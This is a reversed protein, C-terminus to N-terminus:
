PQAAHGPEGPTRQEEKLSAERLHRRGATLDDRVAAELERFLRWYGDDYEEVIQFTWRGDLVNRGYLEREIRDAWDGHGADRLMPIAEQVHRNGEGTLQHFAYLHGRAWETVELGKTLRGVADVTAPTVGDPIEHEPIPHDSM